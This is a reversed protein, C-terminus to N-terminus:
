GRIERLKKYDYGKHFEISGALETLDKRKKLKIYERLADHILDKKTRVKSVAFAEELLSESLDINTRM